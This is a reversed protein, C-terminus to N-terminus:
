AARWEAPWPRGGGVAIEPLAVLDCREIAPIVIRQMVLEGPDAWRDRSFQAHVVVGIREAGAKRLEGAALAVASLALETQVVTIETHRERREVERLPFLGEVALGVTLANASNAHHTYRTWPHVRVVQDRMAVSHYPLQLMRRARALEYDGQAARLQGASVGFLCATQHFCIAADVGWAAALPMSRVIEPRWRDRSLCTPEDRFDRIV